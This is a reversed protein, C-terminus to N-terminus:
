EPLVAIMATVELINTIVDVEDDSFLSAIKDVATM